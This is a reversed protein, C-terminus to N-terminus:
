QREQRSSVANVTRSLDKLETRAGGVEEIRDGLNLPKQKQRRPKPGAALLSPREVRRKPVNDWRLSTM